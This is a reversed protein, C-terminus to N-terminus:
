VWALAGGLQVWNTGDYRFVAVGKGSAISAADSAKKFVANWTVARGTADQTFMFTIKRGLTPNKPAAITVPGTLQGIVFVDADQADVQITAAYPVRITKETDMAEALAKALSAKFGAQGLALEVAARDM